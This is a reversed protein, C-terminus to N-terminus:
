LANHSLAHLLLQQAIGAAAGWHATAERVEQESPLRGDFYARGVAKRVGLDGAVIRPRGLTRALYWEATWVGIGHLRTLEQIVEQDGMGALATLDINRTAMAEALAHISKSKTMTFQLARIASVEGAAVRRPDISYVVTGRIRHKIGFAQALRNRTTLAWKLNVQQASISRILATFPDLQLVPRIGPFLRNLKGITTDAETLRKFAAPATLLMRAVLNRIPETHREARLMVKIAPQSRTGSVMCAFPVSRDNVRTTRTLVRGDWRALLDDGWHGFWELSGALDIPGSLKVEFEHM